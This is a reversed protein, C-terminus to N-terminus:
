QGAINELIAVQAACGWGMPQLEAAMTAPDCQGARRM